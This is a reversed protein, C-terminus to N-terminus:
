QTCRCPQYCFRGRRGPQKILRSGKGLCEPCNPKPLRKLAIFNEPVPEGPKFYKIEGTEINM